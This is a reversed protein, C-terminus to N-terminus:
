RPRRRIAALAGLGALMGLATLLVPAGSSGPSIGTPPAETRTNTFAVTRNASMSLMDTVGGDTILATASDVYSARYGTVLTETIQVSCDAPVDAITISQDYALKFEAAGDRLALTGTKPAEAGAIGGGTYALEGTLPGGHVDEFYVTFAFERILNAFPGTVTKSVTLTTPALGWQAYLTTVVDTLAIGGGPACATGGGDAATNWGKFVPKDTPGTFGAETQSVATVAPTASSQVYDDGSGGNSKYVVRYDANNYNINGNDLLGGDFPSAARSAFASANVPPVRTVGSSNGSVSAAAAVGINAYATNVDAIPDSYDYVETFIGGGDGAASNGTVASGGLMTFTGGSIVYVGGGDSASVCDTIVSGGGMVLSGAVRVGGRTNNGDLVADRMTLSGEINLHRAANPQTITYPGGLGSTLTVTKDAPITVYTDAGDTVDPDNETAAITYPGDTGCADAADQLRHYAGVFYGDGDRTVLYRDTTPTARYVFYIVRNANITDGPNGTDCSGAPPTDWKYGLITYGDLSPVPKNYVSGPAIGPTETGSAGQIDAGGIDVYRETVTYFLLNIGGAGAMGFLIDSMNSFNHPYSGMDKVSPIATEKDAISNTWSGDKSSHYWHHVVQTLNDASKGIYMNFNQSVTSNTTFAVSMWCDYYSLAYNGFMTPDFPIIRPTVDTDGAPYLYVDGREQLDFFVQVFYGDGQNKGDCIIGAYANGTSINRMFIVIDAKSGITYMPKNTNGQGAGIGSGNNGFVRVVGGTIAISGKLGSNVANAGNGIGAGNGSGKKIDKVVTVNGGTIVVNAVSNAGGGIGAGDGSTASVTGGTIIVSSTSFCGSGGGIAAGSSGAIATINGGNITVNGSRSAGGGIAAAGAGNQTAVITGGNIIVKGFDSSYGGICANASSTISLRGNDSGPSVASDVTLVANAPVDIDGSITNTGN